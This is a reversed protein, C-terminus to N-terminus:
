GFLNIRVPQQLRGANKAIVEAFRRRVQPARVEAETYANFRAGAVAQAAFVDFDPVDRVEEFYFVREDHFLPSADQKLAETADRRVATEDHYLEMVYQGPGEALPEAVCLRGGAKLLRRAEKLAPGLKAKPVHHLSFVFMVLDATGDAQPIADASAKSLRLTGAGLKSWDSEPEDLFPDYGAVEAGLTALWRAIQGEGCGVDVVRLGEVPGVAALLGEVRSMVGLDVSPSLTM